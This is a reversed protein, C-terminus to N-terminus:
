EWEITSPPKSTIDYVVRTVGKVENTIRLSVYELVEWPIKAFEAKMGDFSNVARIAVTDEYSREGNRVGVTKIGPLVTFYQWIDLKNKSIEERLIYDSEQVIRLKEETIDGLVRVALGPGPFPQRHCISDPLGLLKGLERVEEKYLTKLPELLTLQLDKPLGGVNHHSKVNKHGDKGSEIIDAAITGQALFKIGNLKKAEETFVDIFEKGIIKRKEEPDAVDKLAELFRKKADIVILNIAFQKQFTNIVEEAEKLRLLGHDVFLCYLNNGIAKHVLAAVVSSDVGGSLALLVKENGVIEKIEILKKEIDM